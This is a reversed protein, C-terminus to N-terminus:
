TTSSLDTAVVKMCMETYVKQDNHPNRQQSNLSRSGHVQMILIGENYCIVIIMQLLLSVELVEDITMMQKLTSVLMSDIVSAILWYFLM